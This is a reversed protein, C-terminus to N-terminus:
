MSRAKFVRSTFFEIFVGYIMGAITMMLFASIDGFVGLPISYIFGILLGHLLYHMKLSSIGITFGILTRMLIINTFMEKSLEIRGGSKIGHYCVFGSIVGLITAIIIRKFRM